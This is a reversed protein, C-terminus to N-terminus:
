VKDMNRVTIISWGVPLFQPNMSTVFHDMWVYPDTVESPEEIREYEKHCTDCIYLINSLCKRLHLSLKKKHRRPVVHHETLHRDKGCVVCRRNKVVMFYPHDLDGYLEKLRRETTDDVLRIGGECEVAHGKKLYRQARPETCRFIPNGDVGMCVVTDWIKVGCLSEPDVGPSLPLWEKRGTRTFNTLKCVGTKGYKVAPGYVSEFYVTDGEVSTVRRVNVVGCNTRRYYSQGVQPQM